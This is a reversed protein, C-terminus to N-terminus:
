WDSYCGHYFGSLFRVGMTTFIVWEFTSFFVHQFLNFKCRIFHQHYLDFHMCLSWDHNDGVVLSLCVHFLKDILLPIKNLMNIVIDEYKFRFRYYAEYLEWVEFVWESYSGGTIFCCTLFTMGVWEVLNPFHAM